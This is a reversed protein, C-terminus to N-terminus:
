KRDVIRRIYRYEDRNIKDFADIVSKASESSFGARLLSEITTSRFHRILNDVIDTKKSKSMAVGYLFSLKLILISSIKAPVSSINM